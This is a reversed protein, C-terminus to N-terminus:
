GAHWFCVDAHPLGLVSQVCTVLVKGSELSLACSFSYALGQGVLAVVMLTAEAVVQMTAM